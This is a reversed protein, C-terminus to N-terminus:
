KREPAPVQRFTEDPWCSSSKDTREASHRHPHTRHLEVQQETSHPGELFLTRNDPWQDPVYAALEHDAHRFNIVKLQMPPRAQPHRQDARVARVQDFDQIGHFPQHGISWFNFKQGGSAYKTM